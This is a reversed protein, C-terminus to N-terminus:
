LNVRNGHHSGHWHEPLGPAPSSPPLEIDKDVLLLFLNRAVSPMAQVYSVEFRGRCRYVEEAGGLVAMGESALM